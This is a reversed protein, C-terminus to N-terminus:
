KQIQSLIDEVRLGLGLTPSMNCGSTEIPSVSRCGPCLVMYATNICALFVSCSTCEVHVIRDLHLAQMTEKTGCMPLSFGPSVEIMPRDWANENWGADFANESSIDEVNESITNQLPVPPVYSIERQRSAPKRPITDKAESSRVSFSGDMSRHLRLAPKKWDSKTPSSVESPEPGPDTESRAEHRTKYHRRAVDQQHNEKFQRLAFSGSRHARIGPRSREPPARPTRRTMDRNPKDYTPSNSSSERSYRDNLVLDNECNLSGNRIISASKEGRSKSRAVSRPSEDEMGFSGSRSKSGSAKPQESDNSPRVRGSSSSRPKSFGSHNRKVCTLDDEQIRHMRNGRDKTKQHPAFENMVHVMDDQFTLLGKTSDGLRAIGNQVSSRREM